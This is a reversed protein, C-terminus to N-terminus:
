GNQIPGPFAMCSPMDVEGQAIIRKAGECRGVSGDAMGRLEKVAEAKRSESSAGASHGLRGESM